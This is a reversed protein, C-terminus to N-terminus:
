RSGRRAVEETHRGALSDGAFTIGGRVNAMRGVLAKLVTSKGAGNTGLLTVIEGEAVDLDVGFLVQLPGYSASLDRCSLLAATGDDSSARVVTADLDVAYSGAAAGVEFPIQRRAAIRRALANRLRAFGADLGGPVALLVVLM